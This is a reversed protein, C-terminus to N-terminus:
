QIEPISSLPSSSASRGATTSQGTPFPCTTSKALLGIHRQSVWPLWASTQFARRLQSLRPTPLALVTEAGARLYAGFMAAAFSKRGSHHGDGRGGARDCKTLCVHLRRATGELSYPANGSSLTGLHTTRR